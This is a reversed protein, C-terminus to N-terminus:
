RRAGRRGYTRDPVGRALSMHTHVGVWPAAVDARTLVITARGPRRFHHGDEGIGTSSWTVAAVAQRRDPSVIVDLDGVDFAFDEIAPWIKSWQQEEVADRGRVVDAHTGFASLEPTFRQRGAAIDAAAVERGWASIWDAVSRRDIEGATEDDHHQAERHTQQQHPTDVRVDQM